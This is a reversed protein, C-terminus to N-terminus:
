RETASRGRAVEVFAAVTGFSLLSRPCVLYEAATFDADEIQLLALRQDCGFEAELVIGLGLGQAVAEKVAERSGFEWRPPITLGARAVGEEFLRRTMSGDERTVLGHEVLDALRVIGRKSLPHAAPAAIAVRQTALRLNFLDTAPASLTVIAIDLLHGRVQETLESSNGIQTSLRVGPHAAAFRALLPMAIHPACLGVSLMAGALGRLGGLRAELEDANQQLAKFLGATERGLPTLEVAGAGRNFLRGGSLDELGRIQATIAPQTVGLARAAESFSGHRLVACFARVQGLRLTRDAGGTSASSGLAVADDTM